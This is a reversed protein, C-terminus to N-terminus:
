ARTNLNCLVRAAGKTYIDEDTLKEALSMLSAIDADKLEMVNDTAVLEGNENKAYILAGLHNDVSLCYTREDIDFEQGDMLGEIFKLLKQEKTFLIKRKEVM